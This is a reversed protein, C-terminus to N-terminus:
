KKDLYYIYRFELPFLAVQTYYFILEWGYNDKTYLKKYCPSVNVKVKILDEKKFVTVYHMYLSMNYTEKEETFTSIGMKNKLVALETELSRIRKLNALYTYKNYM